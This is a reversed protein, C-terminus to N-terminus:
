RPARAPMLLMVLIAGLVLVLAGLDSRRPVEDLLLVGGLVGFVPVILMSVSSVAVPLMLAVRFWAWYCFVFSVLVTYSAALASQWGVHEIWDTGEFLAGAAFPAGGVLLMWGTMSTAPIPLPHRKLLITGYAWSLAAGLMCAVGLPSSALANFEAALLLGMGAMGLGLAIGRNLTLREGLLLVSLLIGWVPMTYALIAARGSPLLSVGFVSLINWATVNVLASLTLVGWYRQELALPQGNIRAFALLAFGGIGACLTRFSWIPVERLAIKMMSWNFGWGLALAALLLLGLPPIARTM